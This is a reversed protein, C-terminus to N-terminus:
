DADNGFPFCFYIFIDPFDQFYNLKNSVSNASSSSASQDANAPREEPQIEETCKEGQKPDQNM